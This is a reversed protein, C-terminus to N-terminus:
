EEIVEVRSDLYYGSGDRRILTDLGKGRLESVAQYVRSSAKKTDIDEEDPWIQEFLEVKTIRERGDNRQLAVLQELLGTLRRKGDCSVTADGELRFTNYNDGDVYLVQVQERNAALMREIEMNLWRSAMQLHFTSSQGGAPDPSRYETMRSKPEELKTIDPPGDNRYKEDMVLRWDEILDVFLDKQRSEDRLRQLAEEALTLDGLLWYGIAGWGIARSADLSLECRRALGYADKLTATGRLMHGMALQSVAEITQLMPEHWERGLLRCRELASVARNQGSEYHGELIDLQAETGVLLYQVVADDALDAVESGERLYSRAGEFDGLAMLNHAIGNYASVEGWPMRYESFVDIAKQFLETARKINGARMDTTAAACYLHGRSRPLQKGVLDMGEEILEMSREYDEEMRFLFGLVGYSNTAIDALDLQKAKEVLERFTRKAVPRPMDHWTLRHQLYTLRLNLSETEEAGSESEELVALAREVLEQLDVTFSCYYRFPSLCWVLEAAESWGRKEGIEFAKIYDAQESLFQQRASEAEDSFLKQGLQELRQFWFSFYVREWDSASIELTEVNKAFTKVAPFLQFSAHPGNGSARRILSKQELEQIIQASSEALGVAELLGEAIDRDWASELYSLGKLGMKQKETLLRWSREISERLAPEWDGRNTPRKLVEVDEEVREALDAASLVPYRAAALKLSLPIGALKEVLDSVEDRAVEGDVGAGVAQQYLEISSAEDLPELLLASEAPHGIVERSTSVITSSLDTGGVSEFFVRVQETVQGVNDLGILYRNEDLWNSIVQIARELEDVSHIPLDLLNGFRVILERRSQVSRFDGLWVGEFESEEAAVERGIETLLRTKGVGPPGVFSVFSSGSALLGRVQDFDSDRGLLTIEPQPLETVFNSTDSGNIEM